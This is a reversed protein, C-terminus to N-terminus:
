DVKEELEKIRKDMVQITDVLYPILKTYSITKMNEIGEEEGDTNIFGKKTKVVEPIIEEVEQAIFGVDEKENEIWTFGTPRLKLIKDLSGSITNVDKKLREDSVNMFATGFGTIDGAAVIEGDHQLQFVRTNMTQATKSNRAELFVFESRRGSTNLDHTDADLRM